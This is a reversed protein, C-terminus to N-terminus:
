TGGVPISLTVFPALRAFFLLLPAAFAARELTFNVPARLRTAYARDAFVRKTGHVPSVVFATSVGTSRSNTKM